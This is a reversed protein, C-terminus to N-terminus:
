VDDIARRYARGSPGFVLVAAGVCGGLVAVLLRPTGDLPLLGLIVALVAAPLVAAMARRAWGRTGVRRLVIAATAVLVLGETAATTLAAGEFGMTPLLVLNGAVNLVLGAVAVKLLAREQGGALLATGLPATAFVCLFAGCLWAFSPVADLAGGVYSGGYLLTLLEPTALVGAVAGLAGLGLMVTGAHVVKTRFGDGEQAASAALVPLVPAMLAGPLLLLPNIPRFAAAYAGLEAEGRLFRVLLVDVHFYTTQIIVALGQVLASRLFVPLGRNRLAPRPRYGLRRRALLTTGIVNTLERVCLLGAFLAGPVGLANLAFCGILVLTQASVGLAQMMGQAQRVQLVVSFVGAALVYLVLAAVILVCRRVGDPELLALVIVIAAAVGGTLRRWGLVGELITRERDRDRAIERAAVAGTGLDMLVHGLLLLTATFTYFGFADADLFRGLCATIGLGLFM